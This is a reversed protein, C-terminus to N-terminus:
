IRKKRCSRGLKGRILRDKILTLEREIIDLRESIKIDTEKVRMEAVIQDRTANLERIDYFPRSVDIDNVIDFTIRTLFYQLESYRKENITYRVNRWDIEEM